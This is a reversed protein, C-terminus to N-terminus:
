EPQVPKLFEPIPFAGGIVAGISMPIIGNMPFCILLLLVVALPKRLIASTLAATVVAVCFIPDIPLITALAYGIAVGSFIVPFINGGRWGMELCINGMLLKGIGTIFLLVVGMGQWITMIDALQPEGSFMAFPLLIGMGGLMIGGIIARLVIYKNLPRVCVKVLRNFFFYLIGFSGGILALPIAAFWESPGMAAISPFNAMGSISGFVNTLLSFSGFGGLIGIFYMLIKKNKPIPTQRTEDEFQNIFGFLPSGFIIGLTAAIGITALEDMEAFAFKFKDSFWFCLGVIIGTLGAEPGLCGGFVLPLLTAIAVIHLNNYPLKKGTKIVGMIEPLERPYAGFRKEWLGIFLGGIACILVPYFALSIRNPIFVWLLDIGFNMVFLLVWTIAGIVGGLLGVIFCMILTKKLTLWM